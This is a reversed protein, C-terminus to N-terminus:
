PASGESPPAVVVPETPQATDDPPAAENDLVVRAINTAHSAIRVLQEMLEEHLEASALSEPVAHRLREFHSRMFAIQQARYQHYKDRMRAAQEASRERLLTIARAIQKIASLHMARLEAEGHPSFRRGSVLWNGARPCIAKTVIDAIQELETAAYM